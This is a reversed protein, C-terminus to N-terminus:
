SDLRVALHRAVLRRAAPVVAEAGEEGLGAGALVYGPLRVCLGEVLSSLM